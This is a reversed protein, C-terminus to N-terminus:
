RVGRTTTPRRALAPAEEAGDGEDKSAKVARGAVLGLGAAGLLFVGPRRRAFTQVDSLMGGIGRTQIDDSVGYARDACDLLTNAARKVYGQVNPAEDPRGESLALAEEGLEQLQQGLRQAGTASQEEIRSRTEELLNRAQVSAQDAVEAAQAKAAVVVEGAQDATSRLVQQGQEKATSAVRQGEEKATSAVEQSHDAATSAVQRSQEKATSAVESTAAPMTGSATSYYASLQEEQDETLDELLDAQQLPSSAVEGATFPVEISDEYIEAEILPVLAFLGSPLLLAAWEPEEAGMYVGEVEGLEVGDSDFAVFGVLAMPDTMTMTM